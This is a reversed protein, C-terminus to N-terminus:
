DVKGFGIAINLWAIEIFFYDFEDIGVAVAPTLFFVRRNIRTYM